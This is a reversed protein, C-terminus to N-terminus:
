GGSAEEAERARAIALILACLGIDADLCKTSMRRLEAPTYNCPAFTDRVVAGLAADRTAQEDLVAYLLGTGRVIAREVEDRTMQRYLTDGM